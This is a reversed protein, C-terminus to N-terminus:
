RAAAVATNQSAVIVWGGGARRLVHRMRTRLVGPASAEVGGPLASFGTIEIDEDVVVADPGLVLLHRLTGVHRSGHFMGRFIADLRSRLVATDTMLTGSVNIFRADKAYHAVWRDADGTQWASDLDALVAAIRLSDTRALGAQAGSARPQPSGAMSAGRLVLAALAAGIIWFRM